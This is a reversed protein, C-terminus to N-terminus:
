IHVACIKLVDIQTFIPKKKYDTKFVKENETVLPSGINYLCIFIRKEHALLDRQSGRKLICFKFIPKLNPTWM